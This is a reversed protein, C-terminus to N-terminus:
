ATIVDFTYGQEVGTKLIEPLLQKLQKEAKESDHMVIICGPQLSKTVVRLTDKINLNKDYDRTLLSWMIIRYEERLAKIQSLNIRGYPPRFLNSNVLGACENVENVYDATNMSWGKVHHFTHNGVAHGQALIRQYVDHHKRVNDGVCFFTAKASFKDLECLVWDTIQPHPGDDFTLYLKRERTKVRWTLSPFVPFVFSPITHRFM